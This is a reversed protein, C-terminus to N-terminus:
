RVHVATVLEGTPFADLRFRGHVATGKAFPGVDNQFTCRLTGRAEDGDDSALEVRLEHFGMYKASRPYQAKYLAEKASFLALALRGRRPEELRELFAIEEPLFVTDYLRPELRERHEIDVGITGVRERLGVAVVARTNCHSISGAIEDPWIPARDPGNLLEFAAHGFRALAIKALARGTAHERKRKDVAKAVQAAERETVHALARPDIESTLVVLDPEDLLDGLESYPLDLSVPRLM